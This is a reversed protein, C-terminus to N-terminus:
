IYIDKLIKKKAVFFISMQANGFLYSIINTGRHQLWPLFLISKQANGFLNIKRGQYQLFYVSPCEWFPLYEVEISCFFFFLCKPMGLFTASIWPLVSSKEAIILSLEKNSHKELLHFQQSTVFTFKPYTAFFSQALERTRRTNIGNIRAEIFLWVDSYVFITM